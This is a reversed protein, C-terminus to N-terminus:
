RKWYPHVSERALCCVPPRRLAEQTMDGIIEARGSSDKVIGGDSLADLFFAFDKRCFDNLLKFPEIGRNEVHVSFINEKCQRVINESFLVFPCEDITEVIIKGSRYFDPDRSPVFRHQAM